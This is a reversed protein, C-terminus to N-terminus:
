AALSARPKLIETLAGLVVDIEGANNYRSLSFRVTSLADQPSLGMALLVHSPANGGATCASGSSVWIGSRDLRDLIMEAEFGEFSVSSTNPLRQAGAANVRVHHLRRGLEKEFRDRLGAIVVSDRELSQAALEAAIGMGVIGAVNETGGRRGREQHGFLLPPLSIGKRVFLAGVGKAAHLKHGAISLFDVPVQRVDIALRGAAQVADTHFPVGRSKAIKAADSIPFIAGTENNAWMLSVLATDPEIAAALQDLDITGQADVGVLTVRVGSEKLHRFLLLTSPHEVACSVIHRKGEAMSLAALIATHNAETASGTFVIEPPAAGILAAVQARANIVRVKAAMGIRHMSSPNGWCQELCERMAEVVSPAPPATANNDLYISATM